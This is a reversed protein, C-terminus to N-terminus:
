LTRCCRLMCVTVLVFVWNDKNKVAVHNSVTRRTNQKIEFCVPTKPCVDHNTQMHSHNTLDCKISKLTVNRFIAEICISLQM